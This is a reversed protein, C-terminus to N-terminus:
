RSETGQFEPVTAHGSQSIGQARCVSLLTLLLIKVDLWLSQHDVYWIDLEFKREWTLANRGKVQAWGTMGPKVEHRRRQFATYRPLYQPLLPRPGVLSMEGRLVNWFQPMEDLSTKRLLRGLRTLREGDPLLTGAADVAQNMTRLKLLTFPRENLGPREQKFFPPLGMTLRVALAAVAMIPGFVALAAAGGAIDIARKLWAASRIRSKGHQKVLSDFIKQFKDVAVEISLEKEYFAKGAAGMRDREQAPLSVLRRVAEALSPANQPKALIGAGARTVLDAADGPVAMIVPRGAALYAQTKCPITITFLPDDKLHVLLADAEDFIARMASLPQMPIFEVNALRLERARQELRDRDVGGGVFVFRACPVTVACETAADLVADLAQAMGMMGAFVVRFEERGHTRTGGTCDPSELVQDPAWNYIVEIRGAPIGRNVLTKRFGPSLVVIRDAKRYVFRCFRGILGLALPNSLMGTAAITDPWLDQVDYVIPASFWWRLVLAPLGITGPPHYVYIVDPRHVLAPGLVASAVAFTVYNLIRRVASRDHSPYLPVRCVRFGGLREIKWPRVRYGPYIKGGPYNPFGTLIEVTNGRSAL